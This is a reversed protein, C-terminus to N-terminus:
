GMPHPIVNRIVSDSVAARCSRLSGAPVRVRMPFPRRTRSSSGNRGRGFASMRTMSPVSGLFYRIRIRILLRDVRDNLAFHLDNLDEDTVPRDILLPVTAGSRGPRRKRERGGSRIPCTLIRWTSEAGEKSKDQTRSQPSGTWHDIRM